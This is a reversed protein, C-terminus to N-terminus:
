ADRWAPWSDLTEPKAKDALLDALKPLWAAHEHKLAVAQAIVGSFDWVGTRIGDRTILHKLRSLAEDHESPEGCCYAYMWCEANLATPRDTSLAALAQRLMTRGDALRGSSLLFCTYNGFYDVNKPDVEIARKYMAEAAGADKRNFQLFVAYNGLNGAEKPDAAIARKYMAETADIDKRNNRLFVAYNGLNSANKPDAEIARKYLVEAADIDKRDIRLFNAYSGLISADNPALEEAQRYLAEARDRTEPNQAFFKAAYVSMWPSKPLAALGDIYIQTRKALDSELKALSDWEAASRQSQNRSIVGQLAKLTDASQDRAEKSAATTSSKAASAAKVAQGLRDRREKYHTAREDGRNRLFEDLPALELRDQLQIMLEDFGSIPVLWGNHKGVLDLIRHRPKGGGSWYCWYIGQALDGPQMAELVGMLSGDNGGYGIVLPVHAKFLDRLANAFEEPFAGMEETTNKPAYFLDRHVKVVQPRTPRHRIFGALSEHGCVLPTSRTYISLADIVLNDFNTTVVVKHKTEELIQALVSYGFSPDRGAIEHELYDFGEKRRGGYARAFIEPYSAASDAPDFTSIGIRAATAWAAKEVAEHDPDEKRLMELWDTVMEGGTKIGSQRSAGSGLLFLLSSDASNEQLAKVRDLFGSLHIDRPPHANSSAPAQVAKSGSRGNRLSPPAGTRPKKKHKGM